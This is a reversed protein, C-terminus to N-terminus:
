AHLSTLLAEEVEVRPRGFEQTSRGRIDKPDVNTVPPPPTLRIKRPRWQSGEAMSVAIAEFDALRAFDRQDFRPHGLDAIRGDINKGQRLVLYNAVSGFITQRFFPPYDGVDQNALTLGLGFKRAGTLIEDMTWGSLEHAEDIYLNFLPPSDQVRRRMAAVHFIHLLIRALLRANSDGLRARALNVLLVKREAMLLSVDLGGRQALMSRMLRDEVFGSLKSTIYALAESRHFDSQGLWTKQFYRTVWPDSCRELRRKLFDTDAFVSPFEALTGGTMMLLFLGNRVAQHFIPGQHEALFMGRFLSLFFQVVLDQEHEDSAALLDLGIPRQREAADFVVIRNIHHVRPDCRELISDVLAGHPDILCCGTGSTLDDLVLNLLATSKGTGPMGSVLTHRARASADLLVPSHPADCELGLQVRHPVTEPAREVRRGADHVLRLHRRRVEVAAQISERESM